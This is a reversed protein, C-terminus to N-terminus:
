QRRGRIVRDIMRPDEVKNCAIVAKGDAAVRTEFRRGAAM